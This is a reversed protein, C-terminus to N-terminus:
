KLFQKYVDNDTEEVCQYGLNDKFKEFAEYDQPSVQIGVLV